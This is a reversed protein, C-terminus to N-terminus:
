YIQDIAQSNIEVPYRQTLSATFQSLLDSTRRSRLDQELAALSRPDSVPDPVVVKTVTGVFSSDQGKAAFPDNREAQFASQVLATDLDESAGEGSRTIAPTTLVTLGAEEAVESLPKGREIRAVLAKAKEEAAEGRKVRTWASEVDGRAEEFPKPAAPTVKDVRVVYYTDNGDAEILASESNEETDFATDILGNPLDGVPEGRDNLGNRDVADIKRVPVDIAAGAEELTAGGGLADELKISREILADVAKHRVLDENLQERVDDLTQRQAPDISTVRVLHWGLPSETLDSVGGEPLQFAVDALEPLIQERAVTGLQIDDAGLGAERQAVTAFDAGSALQELAREGAEEDQFTIQELTRREPVNFDESRDRFAAELEADSISIESTVDAAHLAIAAVSRYEPATFLSINEDHFQRLAAEDPAALGTMASNDIRVYTVDRTENRHRYLVDVLFRPAATGAMTNRVLQGRVIDGRVSDLFGTESLGSARVLRDFLEKEFLGQPNQFAPNTQITQRVVNDSAVMGLESAALDLLTRNVVQELAHAPLGLARAQDPQIDDGLVQRLRRLENQYEDRVIQNSIDVDGIRAAWEGEPDPSIVDGIGWLGFSLVLLLLLLKVVFSSSRKRIADLM